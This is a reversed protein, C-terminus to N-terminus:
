GAQDIMARINAKGDRCLPCLYSFFCDLDISIM